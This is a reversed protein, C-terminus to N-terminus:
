ANEEMELKKIMGMYWDRCVEVYKPDLKELRRKYAEVSYDGNIIDLFEEPEFEVRSGSYNELNSVAWVLYGIREVLEPMLDDPLLAKYLRAIYLDQDFYGYGSKGLIEKVQKLQEKM